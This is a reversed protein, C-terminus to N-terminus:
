VLSRKSNFGENTVTIPIDTFRLKIGKIPDPSFLFPEAVKLVMDIVIPDFVNGFRCLIFLKM